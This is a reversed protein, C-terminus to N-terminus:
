SAVAERASSVSRLKGAIDERCSARLEAFCENTIGDILQLAEQWTRKAADAQKAEALSAAKTDLAHVEGPLQNLAHFILRGVDFSRMAEATKGQRHLAIGLNLMVTGLLNDNGIHMCVKAAHDFLVEAEAPNKAKLQTNALGFLATAADNPEDAELALDLAKSQLEAARDVEGKSYAIAGAMTLYQRREAPTLQDSALDATVQAEITAPDFRFEQGGRERLCAMEQTSGNDLILYKTRPSKSRDALDTLTTALRDENSIVEPDLILVLSGSAEPFLDAVADARRAMREVTSGTQSAAPLVTIGVATFAGALDQLETEFQELIRGPYQDPNLFPANFYFFVNGNDEDNQIGALIRLLVPQLDKTHSLCWLRKESPELFQCLEAVPRYMLDSLPM